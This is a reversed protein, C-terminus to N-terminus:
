KRLREMTKDPYVCITTASGDLIATTSFADIAMEFPFKLMNVAQERCKIDNIYRHEKLGIGLVILFITGFILVFLATKGPNRRLIKM